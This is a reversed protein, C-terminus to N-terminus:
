LFQTLIVFCMFIAVFATQSHTCCRPACGGAKHNKFRGDGLIKQTRGQKTHQGMAVAFASKGWVLYGGRVDNKKTKKSVVSNDFCTVWQHTCFYCHISTYMYHYLLSYYTCFLIINNYQSFSSFISVILSHVRSNM